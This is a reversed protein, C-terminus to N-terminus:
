SQNRLYAEPLPPFEGAPANRDAGSGAPYESCTRVYKTGGLYTDWEDQSLNRGARRCAHEVWTKPTAWLRVTGDEGSSALLRGDPSFAVRAVIDDHGTFPEGIPDGTAPDWLRVAGDTSATALLDGDPSFAVRVVIYDHGAFPEGMPEGTALDWLRVTGDDGASALLGGDPSFAVEFVWYDDGTIPDGVPDGTAPEGTVPDWL